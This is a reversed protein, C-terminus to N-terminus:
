FSLNATFRKSSAGLCTATYSGPENINLVVFNNQLTATVRRANEDMKYDATSHMCSSTIEFGGFGADSRTIKQVESYHVDGSAMIVPQHAKAVVAKFADFEARGRGEYSNDGPQYRGFFQSGLCFFLPLPSDQVLDSIWNLQEDGLFRQNQGTTQRYYRGDLFLFRHGFMDCSSSVGPGRSYFNKVPTQGYFSNFTNLSNERHVYDGDTDNKGFDHDDWIAIAPVLKRWHYFPLNRRADVYRRWLLQPGHLIAIDGYINDGLLCIFDPEALQVNKWMAAINMGILDNMCSLLAIRPNVKKTDLAKLEREDLVQNSNSVVQLLYTPGVELGLFAMKTIKEKSHSPASVKLIQPEIIKGTDPNLLRFHAILAKPHGVVVQASRETTVNQIISFPHKFLSEAWLEEPIPLQAAAGASVLATGKLFDRRNFYM